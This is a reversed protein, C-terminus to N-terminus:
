HPVSKNKDNMLRRQIYFLTILINSSAGIIFGLIFFTM